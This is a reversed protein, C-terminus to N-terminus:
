RRLRAAVEAIVELETEPDPGCAKLSLTKAGAEVFPELFAVIEDATGVPTYKEFPEFPMGYFRQMGAAVHTRGEAADAGVGAWIQLGHHWDVDRDIGVQEVLATGEAFRRPSCWAALWGDGLRGARDLAANSRGGVVFPIREHPIPRIRAQEFSFVEGDGDVTEGDLLRRVIDLEVDTRRGRTAPDVECVEFEHRDEGGVGVGISVRGPAYEALTAIQRAAVLPHRLALLMVGLHLGLRPEMAGLAALRVPGDIGSGDIFSVHDATFVHDIGADAIAALAARQADPDFRGLDDPASLGIQLDSM